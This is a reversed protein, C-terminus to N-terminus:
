RVLAALLLWGFTVALFAASVKTLHRAEAFPAIDPEDRSTYLAALASLAAIALLVFAAPLLHRVWTLPRGWATLILRAILVWIALAIARHSLQLLVAHTAPRSRVLAFVVAAAVSLALAAARLVTLPGPVGDGRLALTALTAALVAAAAFAATAFARVHAAGPRYAALFGLLVAVAVQLALFAAYPGGPMARPGAAIM